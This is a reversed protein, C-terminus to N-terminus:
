DFKRTKRIEPPVSNLVAIKRFKISIWVVNFEDEMFLELKIDVQDDIVEETIAETIEPPTELLIKFHQKWKELNAKQWAAKLKLGLTIKTDSIENVTYRASRM